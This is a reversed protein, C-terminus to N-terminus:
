SIASTLEALLIHMGIKLSIPISGGVPVHVRQWGEKNTTSFFSFFTDPYNDAEKFAHIEYDGPRVKLLFSGDDSTLTSFRTRFDESDIAYVEANAIPSGSLDSIVGYLIGTGTTSQCCVYPSAFHVVILVLTIHGFKWM